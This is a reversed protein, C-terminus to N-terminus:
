GTRSAKRLELWFRSGAGPVSEVGVRGGMREVGKQVIALGIGTGQYKEGHLRTFLRFIQDRHDPAVGIGNDEVWVRVSEAQEEARLRLLPPVGARAFKLANSALNFLVEILTAEHALVPPWPGASEVRAESEEIDKQLRALVSEVVAQLNVSAPEIRRQAIRSFALLDILLADMFQASKNIRAAYGKGTETLAAGAEEVLLASFGQMSRLPARLDHAISYVFAELQKNTATLEATRESVEKELDTAYQSLKEKAESLAQEARRRETINSFLVAVKPSPPGGIRFAYVDFWGSDLAKAQNVFRVPEGTLAVKGYIQSWYPENDPALEGMRKGTVDHLGTKEEFSPNVELFRYDVPNEHEDFIMEVICFGEDISNFLNRYREESERLADEVLKREAIEARLQRNLTEAAETIEHLRVVGLMLAENMELTTEHLQTTETVQMVVGVPIEDVIVPWMAYAWFVPPESPLRETHSDPKGTRYIRDLLAMCGAQQPVLERFPKGVLEEAPRDLLRCFAPNVYRVVHSAGEVTAM